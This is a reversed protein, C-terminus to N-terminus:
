LKNRKNLNNQTNALSKLVDLNGKGENGFLVEIQIRSINKEASHNSQATPLTGTQGANKESEAVLHNWRNSPIHPTGPPVPIGTTDVETINPVIRDKPKYDIKKISQINPLTSLHEMLSVYQEFNEIKAILQVAICDKEYTQKFSEVKGSVVSLVKSITNIAQTNQTTITDLLAKNKIIPAYHEIELKTNDVRTRLSNLNNELLSTDERLGLTFYYLYSYSFLLTILLALFLGYVTPNSKNEKEIYVREKLLNIKM